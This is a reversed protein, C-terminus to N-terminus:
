SAISNEIIHRGTPGTGHLLVFPHGLPVAL